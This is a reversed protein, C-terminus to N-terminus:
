ILHSNFYTIQFEFLFYIVKYITCVPKIINNIVVNLIFVTTELQKIQTCIKILNGTCLTYHVVFKNKEQRNANQQVIIKRLLLYTLTIISVHVRNLFLLYATFVFVPKLKLSNIDAKLNWQDQFSSNLSSQIM